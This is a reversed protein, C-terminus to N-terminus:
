SPQNLEDIIRHLCRLVDEMYAQPQSGFHRQYIAERQEREPMFKQYIRFWRKLDDEEVMNLEPLIHVRGGARIAAEVERRVPSGDDEFEIGFFFYFAPAESPLHSGCFEEIFWDVVLPTLEKDWDLEPIGLYCCVRDHPGLGRLRPSHRWLGDLRADLLPGYGDPDLGFAVFLSALIDTKYEEVDGTFILAFGLEREVRCRAALEPNLYNKLVGELDFAFREVLAQHAHRDLGYLYFFHARAETEERIIKQFRNNQENRDCTYRHWDHLLERAAAPPGPAAGGLEARAAELEARAEHLWGEAEAIDADLKFKQATDIAIIRGAKLANIKRQLM